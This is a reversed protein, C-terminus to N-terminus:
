WYQSQDAFGAGAQLDDVNILTVGAAWLQTWIRNRASVPWGPTDWYRVGIGKDKAAAIQDTLNKFQAATFTGNPLAGVATKFDTSAIPTVDATLNSTALTTLQGDFFYDRPSVGQVLNLPTNGTGIVTVPGAKVGDDETYNTLYGAARLPELAATVAKFTAEGETKCDVWLYLTQASDTDFVGNRTPSTVFKTTPNQAKVQRLIPEIYLAEFTREDTLASIEHGVQPVNAMRSRWKVNRLAHPLIVHTPCADLCNCMASVYMSPAM